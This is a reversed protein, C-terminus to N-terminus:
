RVKRRSAWGPVFVPELTWVVDVLGTVVGGLGAVGEGVVVGVSDCDRVDAEAAGAAGDVDEVGDGVVGTVM